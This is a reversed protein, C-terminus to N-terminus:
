NLNRVLNNCCLPHRKTPEPEQERDSQACHISGPARQLTTCHPRHTQSSGRSCARSPHTIVCIPCTHAPIRTQYLDAVIVLTETQSGKKCSSHTQYHVWLWLIDIGFVGMHQYIKLSGKVMEGQFHGSLFLLTSTVQIETLNSPEQYKLRPLM